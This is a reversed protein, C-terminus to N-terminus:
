YEMGYYKGCKVLMVCKKICKGISSSALFSTADKDGRKAPSLCCQSCNPRIATQMEKAITDLFATEYLRNGPM